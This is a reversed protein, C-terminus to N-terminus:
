DGEEIGEKAFFAPKLFDEGAETVAGAFGLGEGAFELESGAEDFVEELAQASFADLEELVVGIRRLDLDM